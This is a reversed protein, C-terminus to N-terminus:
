CIPLAPYQGLMCAGFKGPQNQVVGVTDGDERPALGYPDATVHQFDAM